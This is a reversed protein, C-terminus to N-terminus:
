RIRDYDIGGTSGSGYGSQVSDQPTTSGGSGTSGGSTSGTSDSSTTSGTSTAGTVLLSRPAAAPAPATDPCVVYETGTDPEYEFDLHGCPENGYGAVVSDTDATDGTTSYFPIVAAVGTIGSAAPAAVDGSCAAAVLVATAASALLLPRPTRM